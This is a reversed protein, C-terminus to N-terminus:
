WWPRAGRQPSCRKLESELSEIKAELAVVKTELGSVAKQDQDRKKPSNLLETKANVERMSNCLPVEADLPGLCPM